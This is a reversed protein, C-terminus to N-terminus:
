CLACVPMGLYRSVANSKHFNITCSAIEVGRLFHRLLTQIRDALRAILKMQGCIQALECIDFCGTALKGFGGGEIFFSDINEVRLQHM